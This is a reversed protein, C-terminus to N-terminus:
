KPCLYTQLMKSTSTFNFRHRSTTIQINLKLEAGHCCQEKPNNLIDMQIHKQRGFPLCLYHTIKALLININTSSGHIAHTRNMKRRLFSM